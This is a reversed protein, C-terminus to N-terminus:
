FYIDSLVVLRVTIMFPLTEDSMQSLPETNKNTPILKGKYICYYKITPKGTSTKTNDIIWREISEQSISVTDAKTQASLCLSSLFLASILALRKM